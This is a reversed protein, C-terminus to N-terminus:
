SVKDAPHLAELELSVLFWVSAVAGSGEVEEGEGDEVNEEAQEADTLEASTPDVM